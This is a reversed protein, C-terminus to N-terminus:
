GSPEAGTSARLGATSGSGTRSSCWAGPRARRAASARALPQRVVAPDPPRAGDPAPAHRGLDAGLGRRALKPFLLIRERASLHSGADNTASVAAGPPIMDVAKQIARAHTDVVLANQPVSGWGGPVWGWLPLPGQWVGTLIVAGVLLAAMAGSRDILRGLRGELGRDRLNALGLLAAAVFVPTILVAYHYDVNQAPGSSAFLNILLQPVAVAALVPAALPLLLLPLLLGLLYLMRGPTLLVDAFEWPRTVLNLAIDAPGNGLRSYRDLHANTTELGFAPMIVGVAIAVWAASAAALVVAARRHEPHRFWAWVGLVM